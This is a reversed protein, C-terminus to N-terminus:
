LNKQQCHVLPSPATNFDASSTYELVFKEDVSATSWFYSQRVYHTNRDPSFVVYKKARANRFYRIVTQILDKFDSIELMGSPKGYFQIKENHWTKKRHESPIFCQIKMWSIMIGTGNLQKQSKNTQSLKVISLFYPRSNHGTNKRTLINDTLTM